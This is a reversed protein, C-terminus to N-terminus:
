DTEMSMKLECIERSLKDLERFDDHNLRDKMELVFKERELDNIKDQISKKTQEM